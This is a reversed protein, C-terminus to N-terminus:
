EHRITLVPCAAQRVVQQATSGFLALDTAGRGRVGIVILDDGRAEALKLIETSPKGHGLVTDVKCYARVAEPVADQLLQKVHAERRIFFDAVSISRDLSENPPQGPLPILDSTVVYMVTLEADNEQAMSMAYELGKMSCPSFDIACLIRKFLVPGAPVADAQRRPVTLVPCTAQRLLKETVSGLLFREFGSRGHTGVTLLDAKMRGAEDLIEAVADGERVATRMQVGALHDFGAFQRLESALRQRDEDTLVVPELPTVAGAYAVAPIPRFVHLLTISSGYWNAIAAANDIAHKSFESFDVPCLINRIEIM